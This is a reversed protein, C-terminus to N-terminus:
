VQADVVGEGRGLAETKEINGRLELVYANECELCIQQEPYFTVFHKHCVGKKCRDCIWSTPSKCLIKTISGDKETITQVASQCIEESNESRM